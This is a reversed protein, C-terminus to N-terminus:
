VFYKITQEITPTILLGAEELLTVEWAPFLTMEAWLEYLKAKITKIDAGMGRLRDIIDLAEREARLPQFSGLPNKGTSKSM